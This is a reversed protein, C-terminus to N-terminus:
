KIIEVAKNYNAIREDLGGKGGNIVKTVQNVTYGSDVKENLGKYFKWYWGASEWAYNSAVYLTGEEVIRNDEVYESFSRYTIKWTLQMYGAGRYRAGDGAHTHEYEPRFDRNSFYSEPSNGNYQEILTKGNGSEHQVQALFHRIREITNIEYKFLVRNLDKVMSDTVGIWGMASLQYATVYEKGQGKTGNVTPVEVIEIIGGYFCTLFDGTTIADVYKGASEDWIKIKSSKTKSWSGNLMPICKHMIFPFQSKVTPIVAPREPYGEPTPKKCSGFTDINQNAKCDTCIGIPFGAKEVGHDNLIDFASMKSGGSCWLISGRKVYKNEKQFQGYFAYHKAMLEKATQEYETVDGNCADKREMYQKILNGQFKFVFDGIFVAEKSVTVGSKAKTKEDTM